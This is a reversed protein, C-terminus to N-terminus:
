LTTVTGCSELLPNTADGTLFGAECCQRDDAEFINFPTAWDIVDDLRPMVNGQCPTSEPLDDPITYITARECGKLLENDPDDGSNAEECCDRSDTTRGQELSSFVEGDLSLAHPTRICAGGRNSTVTSDWSLVDQVECAKILDSDAEITDLDELDLGVACCEQKGVNDTELIAHQEGSSNM